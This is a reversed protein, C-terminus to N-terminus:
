DGKKAYPRKPKDSKSVTVAVLKGLVKHSRMKLLVGSRGSRLYLRKLMLYMAEDEARFTVSDTHEFMSEIKEYDPMVVLKTPLDVASSLFDNLEKM